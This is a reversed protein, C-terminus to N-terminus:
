LCSLTNKPKKDQDCFNMWVILCTIIGRTFDEDGFLLPFMYTIM